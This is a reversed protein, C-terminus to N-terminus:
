LDIVNEGYQIKQKNTLGLKDLPLNGNEGVLASGILRKWGEETEIIMDSKILSYFSKEHEQKYANIQENPIIGNVPVDKFLKEIHHNSTRLPKLLAFNKGYKDTFISIFAVPHTIEKHFVESSEPIEQLIISKGRYEEVYKHMNNSKALPEQLKAYNEVSLNKRLRAQVTNLQEPTLISNKYLEISADELKALKAKEKSTLKLGGNKHNIIAFITKITPM